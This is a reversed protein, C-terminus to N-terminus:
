CCIEAVPCVLRSLHYQYWEPINEAFLSYFDRKAVTTLHKCFRIIAEYEKVMLMIGKVLVLNPM